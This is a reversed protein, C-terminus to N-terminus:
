ISANVYKEKEIPKISVGPAETTPSNPVAKVGSKGCTPCTSSSSSSSSMSHSGRRSGWGFASRRAQRDHRRAQRRDHRRRVGLAGYGGHSSGSSTYSHSSSYETTREMSEGAKVETTLFALSLILITLITKM